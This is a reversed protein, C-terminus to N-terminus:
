WWTSFAGDWWGFEGGVENQIRQIAVLHPDTRPFLSCARWRPGRRLRIRLCLTTPSQLSRFHQQPGLHFVLPNLKGVGNNSCCGEGKALAGGLMCGRRRWWRKVKSPHHCAIRCLATGVWHLKRVCRLTTVQNHGKCLVWSAGQVVKAVTEQKCSCM